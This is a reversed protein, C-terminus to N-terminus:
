CPPPVHTVAEDGFATLALTAETARWGLVLNFLGDEAILRRDSMDGTKADRYMAVREGGIDAVFM